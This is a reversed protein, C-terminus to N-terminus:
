QTGLFQNDSDTENEWLSNFARVRSALIPIQIAGALMRTHGVSSVSSYRPVWSVNPRDM